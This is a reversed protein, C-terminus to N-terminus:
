QVTFCDRDFGRYNGALSYPVSADETERSFRIAYYIVNGNWNCGEETSSLLLNKNEGAAVEQDQWASCRASDFLKLQSGDAYAASVWSVVLPYASKNCVQFKRNQLVDFAPALVANRGTLTQMETQRAQLAKRTTNWKRFLNFALLGVLPVLALTILTSLPFRRRSASPAM